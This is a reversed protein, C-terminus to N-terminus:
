KNCKKLKNKKHVFLMYYLAASILFALRVYIFESKFIFLFFSAFAILILIINLIHSKKIFFIIFGYLTLLLCVWVPMHLEGIKVLSVILACFQVFIGPIVYDVFYLTIRKFENKVKKQSKKKKVNEFYFCKNRLNFYIMFFGIVNAFIICLFNIIYLYDVQNNTHFKDCVRYLSLLLIAFVPIDFVKKSIQYLDGYIIEDAKISSSEHNINNRNITIKLGIKNTKKM